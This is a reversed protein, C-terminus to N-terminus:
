EGTYLCVVLRVTGGVAELLEGFKSFRGRGEFRRRLFPERLPLRAVRARGRDAARPPIAMAPLLAQALGDPGDPGAVATNALINVLDCVSQFRWHRGPKYYSDGQGKTHWIPRM